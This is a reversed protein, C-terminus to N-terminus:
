KWRHWYDYVVAVIVWIAIVSLILAMGLIEVPSTSM